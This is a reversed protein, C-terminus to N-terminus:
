LLMLDFSDSFHAVLTMAVACDNNTGALRRGPASASNSAQLHHFSGPALQSRDVPIRAPAGGRLGGRASQQEQYSLVLGAHGIPIPLLARLIRRVVGLVVTSAGAARPYGSRRADKSIRPFKRARHQSGCRYQWRVSHRRRM